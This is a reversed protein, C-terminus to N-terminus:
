PLKTTFVALFADLMPLNPKESKAMIFYRGSNTARTGVEARYKQMAEFAVTPSTTEFVVVEVPNLASYELKVVRKVAGDIPPVEQGSLVRESRLQFGGSVTPPFPTARSAGGCGLMLALMLSPFFLRFM